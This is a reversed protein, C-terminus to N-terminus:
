KAAKAAKHKPHPHGNQAALEAAFMREEAVDLHLRMIQEILFSRMTQTTGERLQKRRLYFLLRQKVDSPVDVNINAMPNDRTSPRAM